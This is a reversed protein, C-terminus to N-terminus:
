PTRRHGVEVSDDLSRPRGVWLGVNHGTRGEPGEALLEVLTQTVVVAPVIGGDFPVALALPLVVLSNRTSTSLWPRRVRGISIRPDSSEGVILISM